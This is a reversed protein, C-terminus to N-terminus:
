IECEIGITLVPTIEDDEDFRTLTGYNIDFANYSSEDTTNVTHIKCYLSEDFVFYDRPSIDSFITPKERIINTRVSTM